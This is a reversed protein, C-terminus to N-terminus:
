AKMIKMWGGSEYIALGRKKLAQEFEEWSIVTLRDNSGKTFQVGQTGKVRGPQLGKSKAIMQAKGFDIKEMVMNERGNLQGTSAMRKIFRCQYYKFIIQNELLILIDPVNPSLGYFSIMTLFIFM